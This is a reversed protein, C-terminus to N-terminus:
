RAIVEGLSLSVRPTLVRIDTNLNVMGKPGLEILDYTTRPLLSILRVLPVM